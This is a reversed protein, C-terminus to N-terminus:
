KLLTSVYLTGALRTYSLRAGTFTENDRLQLNIESISALRQKEVETKRANLEKIQENLLNIEGQIGEHKAVAPTLKEIREQNMIITEKEEWDLDEDDEWDDEDCWDDDLDVDEDDWM